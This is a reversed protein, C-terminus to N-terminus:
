AEPTDVFLIDKLPLPSHIYDWNGRFESFNM